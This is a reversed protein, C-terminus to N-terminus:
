KIVKTEKLLKICDEKAKKYHPQLEDNKWLGDILDKFQLGDKFNDGYYTKMAKNIASKVNDFNVEEGNWNDAISFSNVPAEFKSFGIGVIHNVM